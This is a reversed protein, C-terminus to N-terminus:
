RDRGGDLVAAAKLLFSAISLCSECQVSRRDWKIAADRQLAQLLNVVQKMAQEAEQKKEFLMGRWTFFM